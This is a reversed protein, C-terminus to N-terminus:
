KSQPHALEKFITEIVESIKLQLDTNTFKIVKINLANLFNTRIEDYKQLDEKYPQGGDIELALKKSANKAKEAKKIIYNKINKM